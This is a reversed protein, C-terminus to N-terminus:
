SLASCENFKDIHTNPTEPFDKPPFPPVVGGCRTFTHQSISGLDVIEPKQYM